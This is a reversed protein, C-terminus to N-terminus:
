CASLKIEQFKAIEDRKWSARDIPNPVSMPVSASGGTGDFNVRKAIQLHSRGVGLVGNTVSSVPRSYLSGDAGPLILNPMPLCSVSM